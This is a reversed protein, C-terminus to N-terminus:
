FLLQYMEVREDSRIHKLRGIHLLEDVARAFRVRDTSLIDGTGKINPTFLVRVPNSGDAFKIELVGRESEVPHALILELLENKEPANSPQRTRVARRQSSRARHKSMEYRIRDRVRELQNLGLDALSAVTTAYGIKEAAFAHLEDKSWKLERAVVHITKLLTNRYQQPNARKLRKDKSARYQLLWTKAEDFHEKPLEALQGIGFHENFQSWVIGFYRATKSRFEDQPGTFAKVALREVVEKCIRNLTARQEATVHREDPTFGKKPKVKRPTREPQLVPFDEILKRLGSVIDTFAEDENHWYKSTVPKGDAPFAKFQRLEPISWDCERLIIPVIVAQGLRCRELARKFEREYCYNSNIFSASVLVLYLEAAEWEREVHEDIVGALIERDTWTTLFSRRRLVALHKHLKELLLTDDHSYSIVARVSKM